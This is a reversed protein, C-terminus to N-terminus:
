ANVIRHVRPQSVGIMRAAESYGVRKVLATLVERRKESLEDADDNLGRIQTTLASAQEALQKTTRSRTGAPPAM